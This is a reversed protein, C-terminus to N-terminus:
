PSFSPRAERGSRRLGSDGWPCDVLGSQWPTLSTSCRRLSPKSLFTSWPDSASPAWGCSDAVKRAVPPPLKNSPSLRFWLRGTITPRRLADTELGDKGTGGGWGVEKARGVGGHPFRFSGRRVRLCAEREWAGGWRCLEYPHPHPRLGIPSNIGDFGDTGRGAVRLCDFLLQFVNLTTKLACVFIFPFHRTAM